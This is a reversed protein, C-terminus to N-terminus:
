QKKQRRQLTVRTAEVHRRESNNTEGKEKRGRRRLALELNSVSHRWAEALLYSTTAALLLMVSDISEDVM